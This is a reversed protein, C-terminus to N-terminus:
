LVIIATALFFVAPLFFDVAFFVARFFATLAPDRMTPALPLLFVLDAALRVRLHAARCDHGWAGQGEGRGAPPAPWASPRCRGRCWCAARRRPPRPGPHGRLRPPMPRPPMLRAPIGRAEAAVAIRLARPPTTLSNPNPRCAREPRAAGAG